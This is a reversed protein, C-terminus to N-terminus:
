LVMYLFSFNVFAKEIEITWIQKFAFFIVLSVRWGLPKQSLCVSTAQQFHDKYETIAINIKLRSKIGIGLCLM